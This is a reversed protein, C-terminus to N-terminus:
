IETTAIISQEPHHEIIHDNYWSSLRRIDSIKYINCGHSHVAAEVMAAAVTRANVPRKDRMIGLKNMSRVTSLAMEEGPCKDDRKGYLQTPRLISINEFPLKVVKEELEGKIRTYFFLSNADAGASSVLVYAPVGNGAAGAAFNYQYTFDVEYQRLKGGAQKRTTGLCSFLVDGELLERWTAPDGFDVFHETLKLDDFGTNHRTFAAIESFRSDAILLDLLQRGVMGTGGIVLAKLGKKEIAM